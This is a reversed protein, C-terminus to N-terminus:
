CLTAYVQIYKISDREIMEYSTAELNDKLPQLPTQLIDRRGVEIREQESLPEM